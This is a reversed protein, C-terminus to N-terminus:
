EDGLQLPTFAIKNIHYQNLADENEKLPSPDNPALLVFEPIFDIHDDSHFWVM